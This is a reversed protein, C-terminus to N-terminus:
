NIEQFSATDSLDDNAEEFWQETVPAENNFSFTNL